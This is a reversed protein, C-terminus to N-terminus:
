PRSVRVATLRYNLVKLKVHLIDGGDDHENMSNMIADVNTVSMQWWWRRLWIIMTMMTTAVPATSPRCLVEESCSVVLYPRWHSINFHLAVNSSLNSHLLERTFYNRHTEIINFM